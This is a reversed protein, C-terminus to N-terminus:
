GTGVALLKPTRRGAFPKVIEEAVESLGSFPYLWGMYFLVLDGDTLGLRKRVGSGDANIYRRLDVGAPLVKTKESRAGMSVTYDRLAENISLVMSARQYDAQEVVKSLGQRMRRAMLR